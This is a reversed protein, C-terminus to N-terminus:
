LKLGGYYGRYYKRLIELAKPTYYGFEWDKLYELADAELRKRNENQMFLLHKKIRSKRFLKRLFNKMIIKKLKRKSNKM